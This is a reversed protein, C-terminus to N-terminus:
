LDLLVVAGAVAAAVGVLLWTTLGLNRLWGPAAFLGALETPEIEVFDGGEAAGAGERHLRGRLTPRKMRRAYLRTRRRKPLQCLGPAQVSTRFKQVDSRCELNGQWEGAPCLVVARISSSRRM